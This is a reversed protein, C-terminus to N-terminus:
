DARTLSSCHLMERKCNAKLIQLLPRAAHPTFSSQLSHHFRGHQRQRTSRVKRAVGVGFEGDDSVKGGGGHEVAATM